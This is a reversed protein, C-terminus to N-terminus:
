FKYTVKFYPTDNRTYVSKLRADVNWRVSFPDGDKSNGGVKRSNHLKTTIFAEFASVVHNALAVYAFARAKDFKNNADHRLQEYAMRHASTPTFEDATIRAPIYGLPDNLMNGAYIADDWGWAFQNYKGTMEYYQGTYGNPLHHSIETSDINADSSDGYVRYLYTGYSEKSWHDRNYQEFASTAKNGDSHYKFHFIWLAAELGVFGVAKVKSGYYWQGLGPVALSLAFAKGPSRYPYQHKNVATGSGTDGTAATMLTPIDTSAYRVQHMALDLTTPEVTLSKASPSLVLVALIASVCLGAIGRTVRVESM